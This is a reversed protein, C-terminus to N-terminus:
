IEYKGSLPLFNRNLFSNGGDSSKFKTQGSTKVKFRAFKKNWSGSIQSLDLGFAPLINVFVNLVSLVSLHMPLLCALYAIM